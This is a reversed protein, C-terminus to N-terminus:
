SLEAAATDITSATGDSKITIKIYKGHEFKGSDVDIGGINITTAGSQLGDNQQCLKVTAEGTVIGTDAAKTVKMKMDKGIDKAACTEDTLVAASVQAYAARINAEDTAERAKELQSTFIPISIAVLVGIIAVVVLLEALTFGKKNLKKFM